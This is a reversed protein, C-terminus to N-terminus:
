AAIPAPTRESPNCTSSSRGSSKCASSTSTGPSKLAAANQTTAPPRTSRESMRSVPTPTFGVRVANASRRVEIPKWIPREIARRSAPSATASRRTCGAPLRRGSFTSALMAAAIISSSGTSATTAVCIAPVLTIAPAPSSRTLSDSRSAEMASPKFAIPASMVTSSSPQPMLPGRPRSPARTSEAPSWRTAIASATAPSIAAPLVSISPESHTSMEYGSKKSWGSYRAHLDAAVDVGLDDPQLQVLELHRCRAIVELELDLAGLLRHSRALDARDVPRALQVSAEADVRRAHPRGRLSQEAAHLLALRQRADVRQDVDGVRQRHLQLHWYAKIVQVLHLTLLERQAQALLVLAVLSDTLLSHVDGAPDADGVRLPGAAIRAGVGGPRHDGGVSLPGRPDVKKWHAVV